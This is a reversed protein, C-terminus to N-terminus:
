NFSDGFVIKKVSSRLVLFFFLMRIVISFNKVFQCLFKKKDDHWLSVLSACIRVELADRIENYRGGSKWEKGIKHYAFIQTDALNNCSISNTHIRYKFLSESLYKGKLNYLYLRHFYAMDQLRKIEEDWWGIKNIGSYTVLFCQTPLNMYYIHGKINHPTESIKRHFVINAPKDEFHDFDCSVYDLKEEKLIKLRRDIYDPCMIDDDDFFQIYEGQSKALGYNRAHCAGLGDSQFLFFNPRGEIFSNVVNITNDNSHDDVVIVEINKYTQNAASILTEVIYDERNHTPIIISVLGKKKHKNLVM